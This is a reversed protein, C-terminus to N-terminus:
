ITNSDDDSLVQSLRSEIDAQTEGTREKITGVLQDWQGQSRDLDDDTLSGWAEKVKGKVQDWKGELQLRQADM